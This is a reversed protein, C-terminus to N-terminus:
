VYTRLSNIEWYAEVFEKPNNNVFDICTGPCGSKPYESGAWDGCFTLDFVIEHPGFHSKMDCNEAPFDAVPLGWCEPQVTKSGMRVEEPILIDNRGWFWVSVGQETRRMAFWGGGMKNFRQGFSGQRFKVGCGQNNNQKADCENSEGVGTMVRVAGTMNCGPTTHLSALNYSRKNIGEIIDIEGGQPWRGSTTVTWFAPWTGCGTPMHTLDLILVSDEYHQKSAVRISDRGRPHSKSNNVADARMVFKSESAYTLNNTKAYGQDVYNVRGHTPDNFTQFSRFNAIPGPFSLIPLSCTVLLPFSLLIFSPYHLM